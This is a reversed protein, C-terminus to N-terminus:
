CTSSTSGAEPPWEPLPPLADLAHEVLPVLKFSPLEKTAPYVPLLRQHDLASLDDPVGLGRGDPPRPGPRGPERAVAQPRLRRGQRCRRSWGRPCSARGSRSTSSRAELRRRLGAPGPSPWCWRGAARGRGRTVCPGPRSRASRADGTRRRRRGVPRAGRRRRPAQAPPARAPRPGHPDRLGHAAQDRRRRQCRARAVGSRRPDPPRARRGARTRGVDDSSGWSTAPPDSAGDIVEVEAGDAAAQRVLDHAHGREAAPVGGGIVLTVLEASSM